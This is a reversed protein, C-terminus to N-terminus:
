SKGWWVSGLGCASCPIHFFDAEWTDDEQRLRQLQNKVFFSAGNGLKLRPEAM